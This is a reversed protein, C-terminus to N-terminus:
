PLLLVIKAPSQAGKVLRIKGRPVKLEGALLALAAANARGQEAPAKVWLEFSDPAKRIAEERKSGPHVKLKIYTGEV